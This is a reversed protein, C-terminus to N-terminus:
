RASTPVALVPVYGVVSVSDEPDVFESLCDTSIYAGCKSAYAQSTVEGKGGTVVAVLHTDLPKKGAVLSVGRRLHLLVFFQGTSDAGHATVRHTTSVDYGTSSDVEVSRSGVTFTVDPRGGVNTCGAMGGLAMALVALRARMEGGSDNTRSKWYMREAWSAWVEGAM